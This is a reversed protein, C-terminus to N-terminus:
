RELNDGYQEELRWQNFRNCLSLFLDAAVNNTNLESRSKIECYEYICRAAWGENREYPANFATVSHTDELFNIFEEDKCMMIARTSLAPKQEEVDEMKVLAMGYRTGMPDTLIDPTMDDPHVTLTLRWQGNQLQAMGHKKVEM